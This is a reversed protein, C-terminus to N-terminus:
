NLEEAYIVKEGDHTLLFRVSKLKHLSVKHHILESFENDLLVKGPKYNFELIEYSPEIEIENESTETGDLPIISHSTHIALKLQSQEIASEVTGCKQEGLLQLQTNKPGREKRNKDSCFQLSRSRKALAQMEKNKAEDPLYSYLTRKKYNKVSKFILQKAEEPQFGESIAQFYVNSIIEKAHGHSSTFEAYAQNTEELM